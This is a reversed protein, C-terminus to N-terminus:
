KNKRDIKLNKFYKLIFVKRYIFIMKHLINGVTNWFKEEDGPLLLQDTFLILILMVM